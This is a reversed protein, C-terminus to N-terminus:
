FRAVTPILPGDVMFDLWSRHACWSWLSTLSISVLSEDVDDMRRKTLPLFIDVVHRVIREFQVNLDISATSVEILSYSFYHFQNYVLALDYTTKALKAHDKAKDIRDIM